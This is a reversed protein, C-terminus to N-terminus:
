LLSIMLMSEPDLQHLFSHVVNKRTSERKLVALANHVDRFYFNEAQPSSQGDTKVVTVIYVCM